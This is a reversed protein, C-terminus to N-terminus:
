RVTNEPNTRIVRTIETCQMVAVIPIKGSEIPEIFQTSEISQTELFAEGRETGEGGGPLFRDGLWKREAV